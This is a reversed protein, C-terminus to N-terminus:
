LRHASSIQALRDIPLRLRRILSLFSVRKAAATRPRSTAVAPRHYQVKLSNPRGIEGGGETASGVGPEVDPARVGIADSARLELSEGVGERTASVWDEGVGADASSSLPESGGEDFGAACGDGGALTQGVWAEADVVAGGVESGAIVSVPGVPEGDGVSPTEAAAGAMSSGPWPGEDVTRRAGDVVAGKGGATAAM